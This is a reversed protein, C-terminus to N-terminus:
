RKFGKRRKSTGKTKFRVLKGEKTRFSVVKTGKSGKGSHKIESRGLGRGRIIRRKKRKPQKRKKTKRATKRKGTTRKKPKKRKARRVITTAGAILGTTGIGVAATSVLPNGRIFDTIPQTIRDLSTLVSTKISKPLEISKIQQFVIKFQPTTM